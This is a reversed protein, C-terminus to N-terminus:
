QSCAGGGATNARPMAEDPRPAPAQDLDEATPRKGRPSPQAPGGFLTQQLYGLRLWVALEREVGRRSNGAAYCALARASDRLALAARGIVKIATRENHEYGTGLGVSRGEWYARQRLWRKTLRAAPVPHTVAAQGCYFLAGGARYIRFSMEMDENTIRRTGAYGLDPNFLGVRSLAARTVSMNAGLMSVPYRIQLTEDGLNLRSLYETIRSGPDFWPPRREPLGLIVQGGVGWANPHARYADALAQLWGRHVRVDDDVFALVGGRAVGIGANRAVSLGQRGEFVYRVVGGSRAAYAHILASTGDTSNNDVVIIEHAVDASQALLDDLTPALLRDRNFTPVIVSFV